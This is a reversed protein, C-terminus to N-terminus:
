GSIVAGLLNTIDPTLQSKVRAVDALTSSHRRTGLLCGGARAAVIQADAFDLLPPTDLLMVDFRASLEELLETFSLRSLLEQPNPPPAGAPLVCLNEFQAIRHVAEDLAVRGNLVEALGEHGALGFLSYQAPNRMNTDILLTREGLQAFVLALNASLTSCGDGSRAAVVALATGHSGFWRMSLQSRLTRLEETYKAYPEYAAALTPSLVSEGPLVFPYEFQLALARRLQRESVLKLAIAAEGFRMGRKRQASLIRHLDADKIAGSSVLIEGIRPRIPALRSAHADTEVAIDM